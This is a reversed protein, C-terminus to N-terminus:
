LALLSLFVLTLLFTIPLLLPSLERLGVVSQEELHNLLRNGVRIFLRFVLWGILLGSLSGFLIDGPYHLGLYIRSYSSLCAWLFVSASSLVVLLRRSIIRRLYLTVFMFAGFTNAAHSSIFGYLGGRRGGVLDVLGLLRPEHSPRYREFLPKCLSSAFQDCLLVVLALGVVALLVERWPRLRLLVVLLALILPIWTATRTVYMMVQDLWVSDSGNLALLLQHDFEILRDM